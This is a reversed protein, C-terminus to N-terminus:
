DPSASSTSWTCGTSSCRQADAQWIAGNSGGGHLLVVPLTHSDGCDLVFTEGERTDVGRHRPPLAWRRLHERYSREVAHRGYSSRYIETNM